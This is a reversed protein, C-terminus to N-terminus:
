KQLPLLDLWKIGQLKKQVVQLQYYFRPQKIYFYAILCIIDCQLSIGDSGVPNHKFTWKNQDIKNNYNSKDKYKNLYNKRQDHIKERWYHRM